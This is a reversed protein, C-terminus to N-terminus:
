RPAREHRFAVSIGRINAWAMEWDQGLTLNVVWPGETVYIHISCYNPHAQALGVSILVILFGSYKHIYHYTTWTSVLEYHMRM